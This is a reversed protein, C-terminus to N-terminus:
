LIVKRIRHELVKDSPRMLKNEKGSNLFFFNQFPGLYGNKYLILNILKFISTNMKLGFRLMVHDPVCDSLGVNM